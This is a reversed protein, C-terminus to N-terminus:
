NMRSNGSILRRLAKIYVGFLPSENSSVGLISGWNVSVAM